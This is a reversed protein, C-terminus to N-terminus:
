SFYLIHYIGCVKGICETFAAAGKENIYTNGMDVGHRKEVEIVHEFFSFPKEKKALLYAVDIMRVIRQVESDKQKRISRGIPTATFFDAISLPEPADNYKMAKTHMKSSAHKRINDRKLATGTIGVLFADKFNRTLKIKAKFKICVACKVDILKGDSESTWRLWQKEPDLEKQWKKATGEM